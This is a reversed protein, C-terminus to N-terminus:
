IEKPSQPRAGEWTLPITFNFVFGDSENSAWIKGGHAEIIGKCISLGLGTGTVKDAATVRYFKDFIRTLNEDSLHPSRNKVQVFVLNEDKTQMSIGIETGPPAYKASNSILNTFVQELQVYDVPVLPLDDPIETHIIHNQVVQKMRKIVGNVIEELSNWGRQPNLAGTEIRSMDLLNGVLQNLHDTEEEIATLLEQKSEPDLTVTKSRLSSISAKITSLPTRLEHSVSSLLSSKLKDSEELVRARNDSEVLNARELALVGQSAVTKLMRQESISLPRGPRWIRIAGMKNRITSVPLVFDPETQNGPIQGAQSLFPDNQDHNSFMAIEVYDTQFSDRIKEALIQTISKENQLGSIAVSFEYLHTVERERNMIAVLKQRDSDLLQSIVIAIVLFMILSILDQTKHVALTFYPPIFYYNFSLFSLVAALIAPFLGFSRSIVVVPLLYLLSIVQVSMKDRILWLVTTMLAVVGISGVYQMFLTKFSTDGIKM